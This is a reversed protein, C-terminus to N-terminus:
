PTQHSIRERMQGSLTLAVDAGYAPMIVMAAPSYGSAILPMMGTEAEVAALALPHGNM